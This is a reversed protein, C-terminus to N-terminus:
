PTVDWFGIYKMAVATLFEFRVILKQSINQPSTFQAPNFHHM